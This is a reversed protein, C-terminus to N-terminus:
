KSRNYTKSAEEMQSVDLSLKDKSLERSNNMADDFDFSVQQDTISQAHLATPNNTSGQRHAVGGDRAQRPNMGLRVGSRRELLMTAHHRQCLKQRLEQRHHQQRAKREEEIVKETLINQLIRDCSTKDYELIRDTVIKNVGKPPLHNLMQWYANIHMQQDKLGKVPDKSVNSWKRKM